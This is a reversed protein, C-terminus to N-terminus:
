SAACPNAVAAPLGLKTRIATGAQTQQDRIPGLSDLLVGVRNLSPAQTIDFYVQVAEGWAQRIATVDDKVAGPVIGLSQALFPSTDAHDVAPGIIAMAEHWAVLTGSPPHAVVAADSIAAGPCQATNMDAIVQLYLPGFDNV